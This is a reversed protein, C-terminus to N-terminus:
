RFRDFRASERTAAPIALYERYKWGTDVLEMDCKWQEAGRTPIHERNQFRWGFICRNRQFRRRRGSVARLECQYHSQIQPGGFRPAVVQARAAFLLTNLFGSIVIRNQNSPRLPALPSVPRNNVNASINM